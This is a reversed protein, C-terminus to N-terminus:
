AGTAAQEYHEGVSRFAESAAFRLIQAARGTELRAERLPKGMETSMDHAIEEVRAELAAAAATLYGARRALPQASWDGFAAAAAAVAADVDEETSASFSGVTESPRMPNVKSYFAGLSSARWEGGVYNCGAPRTSADSM